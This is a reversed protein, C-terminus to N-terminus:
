KENQVEKAKKQKIVSPHDLEFYRISEIGPIYYARYDMGVGLNVVSELGKKAISDKIVDDIYRFRCFM